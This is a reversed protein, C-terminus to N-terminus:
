RRRLADLRTLLEWLVGASLGWVLDRGLLQESAFFRVPRAEEAAGWSEEWAVGDAYLGALPAELVAEVEAENPSFTPDGHVLGVFPAVRERAGRRAVAPLAGLIEVAARDLGIEEEAERLATELPPEGPESRGGPFAITRPERQLTAARRTLLVMPGAARVIIPVLIAAACIDGAPWHPELSGALARVDALTITPSAGADISWAPPSGAAVVDPRPVVQHYRGAAV